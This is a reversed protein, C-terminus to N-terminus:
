GEELFIGYFLYDGWVNGRAEVGAVKGDWLFVTTEAGYQVEAREVVEDEWPMEVHSGQFRDNGEQLLM